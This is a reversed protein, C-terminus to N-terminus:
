NELAFIKELYNKANKCETKNYKYQLFSSVEVAMKEFLDCMKYAFDAEKTSYSIFIDTM